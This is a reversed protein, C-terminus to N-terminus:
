HGNGGSYGHIVVVYYTKGKRRLRLPKEHCLSQALAQDFFSKIIGSQAISAASDEFKFNQIAKVKDKDFLKCVEEPNGWFLVQDTYSVIANPQHERMKDNLEQFTM